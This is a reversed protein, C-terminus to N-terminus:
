GLTRPENPIPIPRSRTTNCNVTWGCHIPYHRTAARRGCSCPTSSVQFGPSVIPGTSNNALFQWLQSLVALHPPKLTAVVVYPPSSTGRREDDAQVPRGRVLSGLLVLSRTRPSDLSRPWSCTGPSPGQFTSPRRDVGLCWPGEPPLSRSFLGSRRQQPSFSSPNSRDGSEIRGSTTAMSPSMTLRLRDCSAAVEPLGSGSASGATRPWAHTPKPITGESPRARDRDPTTFWPM